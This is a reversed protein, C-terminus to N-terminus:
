VRRVEMVGHTTAAEYASPQRSALHLLIKGAQWKVARKFLIGLAVLVAGVIPYGALATAIGPGIIALAVPTASVRHAVFRQALEPNVIVHFRGFPLGNRFEEFPVYEATDPEDSTDPRNMPPYEHPEPM